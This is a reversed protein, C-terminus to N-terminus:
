LPALGPKALRQEAGPQSVSRKGRLFFGGGGGGLMGFPHPQSQWERRRTSVWWRQCQLSKKKGRATGFEANKHNRGRTTVRIQSRSGTLHEPPRRLPSALTKTMRLFVLRGFEGGFFLDWVQLSVPCPTCPASFDEVLDQINKQCLRMKVPFKEYFVVHGARAKYM